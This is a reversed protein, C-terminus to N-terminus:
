PRNLKSCRVSPASLPGCDAVPVVLLGCELLITKLRHGEARRETSTMLWKSSPDRAGAAPKVCIM